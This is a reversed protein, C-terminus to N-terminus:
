VQLEEKVKELEEVFAIIKKESTFFRIGFGDWTYHDSIVNGADIWSTFSYGKHSRELIIEFSPELPEFSYMNKSKSDLFIKIGTILNKIENIPKLAFVYDGAGKDPSEKEFCLEKDASKLLIEYPVWSILKKSQVKNKLILVEFNTKVQEDESLLKAM